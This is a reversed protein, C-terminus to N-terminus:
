GKSSEELNGEKRRRSDRRREKDGEQRKEVM